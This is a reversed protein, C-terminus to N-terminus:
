GGALKTRQGGEAAAWDVATQRTVTGSQCM